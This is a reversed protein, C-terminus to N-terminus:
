ESELTKRSCRRQPFRVSAISFSLEESVHGGPAAQMAAGDAVRRGRPHRYRRIESWRRVLRIRTRLSLLDPTGVQERRLRVPCTLLLFRVRTGEEKM